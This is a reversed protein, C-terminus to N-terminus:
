YPSATLILVDGAGFNSALGTTMSFGALTASTASVATQQIYIGTANTIDWGTVIWGNPATPLGVVGSAAGGSGVTVKFGFTNAGVIAPSTGFGSVITPNTGSIVVVGEVQLSSSASLTTFSGAAPINAGIISSDITAGTIVDSNLPPSFYAGGPGVLGLCVGASNFVAQVPVIQTTVTSAVSNKNTM